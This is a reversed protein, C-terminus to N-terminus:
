SLLDLAVKLDAQGTLTPEFIDGFRKLRDFINEIDFDTPKLGNKIEGWELPTSVTAEKTPRVSYACAMTQGYRNQLYDLYVRKQRAQPKRAISTTKPLNNAVLTVVIQAFQKVEEHSYKAGTPVYIHLGTKGSTKCFSSVKAKDLIKKTELAAEIVYEFQIDEPDLDIILYDPYELSDVRSNWVNIEICGLNALYILNEEDNCILYTIEKNETDSFIKVTKIWDATLASVDKQFFSKGHIGNPFRNLSQPRNIIYPLINPAIKRYYNILDGKTLKKEPFYIKTLNTLEFKASSNTLRTEAPPNERIVKEANKDERLGLFVPQRMRGDETWESFSVECILKPKVWQVPMNPKVVTKFPSKEVKLKSLKSFLDSLTQENFGTGTHGIYSFEGNKYVGLLLAGFNKRSGRPQTYGAILAEQRQGTKIKLWYKTRKGDLYPSKADKAMIGELEHKQAQQFFEVGDNEIHDSYKVTKFKPLIKKLKQKREELPKERLDKGDLNILDFIYYALNGEGTKQYNQMLQFRSRGDKDLVVLEGDLILDHNIKELESVVQPYKENLSLSNRSYLNVKHNKIEAIARYGDWKIEFLWGRRDFPSDVLTALMPKIM